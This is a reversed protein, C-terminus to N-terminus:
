SFEMYIGVLTIIHVTWRNKLHKPDFVTVKIKLLVLFPSATYTNKEKLNFDSMGKKQNWAYICKLTMLAILIYAMSGSLMEETLCTFLSLSQDLCLVVHIEM